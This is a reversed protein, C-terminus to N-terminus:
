SALNFHRGYPTWIFPIRPYNLAVLHCSPDSLKRYFLMDSVFPLELFDVQLSEADPKGCATDIDLVLRIDRMQWSVQKQLRRTVPLADDIRLPHEHFLIEPGAAQDAKKLVADFINRDPIKQHALGARHTLRELPEDGPQLPLRM